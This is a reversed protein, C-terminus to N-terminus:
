NHHVAPTKKEPRIEEINRTNTHSTREKTQFLKRKKIKNFVQDM